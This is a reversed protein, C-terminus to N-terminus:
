SASGKFASSLSTKLMKQGNRLKFEKGGMNKGSM